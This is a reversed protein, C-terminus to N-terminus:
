KEILLDITKVLINYHFELLIKLIAKNNHIILTQFTNYLIKFIGNFKLLDLRAATKLIIMFYDSM